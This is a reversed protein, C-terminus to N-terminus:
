RATRKVDALWTQFEAKLRAVDGPRKSALNTSESVDQKLDYLQWPRDPRERVIKWNGMRLAANRGYVFFLSKHPSPGGKTVVPLPDKGDLTVRAPLKAGSLRACAILLDPSWLPESITSGPKIRRPWRAVAPVRLGGEWCTVGGQRLPANSGVDLGKRSLRFAGNDSMFFVFTNDAVKATDVAKLVRGIARDLATVVAAYRQKPDREDPSLGYRQFAWDPAQWVNPEGPKKNGKVPFHPANFPLYCFWPRGAKSKRRIFDIAADAFIDTSYEGKRHM